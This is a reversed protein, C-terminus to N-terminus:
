RTLRVRGARVVEARALVGAFANRMLGLVKKGSLGLVMAFGILPLFMVYLGGMMPGLVMILLVPVRIYNTQDGGPLVGGKKPLTVIEWGATNWYFGAKVPDNGHYRTMKAGGTFLRQAM